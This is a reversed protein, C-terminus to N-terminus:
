IQIFNLIGRKELSTLNEELSLFKDVFKKYESNNFWPLVRFLCTLYSKIDENPKLLIESKTFGRATAIFERITSTNVDLSSLYILSGFTIVGNNKNGFELEEM